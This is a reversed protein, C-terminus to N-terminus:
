LVRFTFSYFDAFDFPLEQLPTGKDSFFLIKGSKGVDNKDSNRKWWHQIMGDQNTDKIIFTYIGKELDFRERITEEEPFQALARVVTGNSNLLMYSNEKARKPTGTVIELVIKNPFILPLTWNTENYNNQPQEDKEGNVKVINVYFKIDNDLGELTIAPLTINTENLFDLYGYWKHTYTKGNKTGYNFSITKIPAQGNNKIKIVPTGDNFVVSRRYRLANNPSITEILAADLNFNPEGYTILQHAMRYDGNKEGNDDFMEIAYDITISDKKSTYPTLEFNYTDVATGPCWGARDFQWTGGQPHIPNHGCDKWVSWNFKNDGDINLTHTKSDWECCNYPGEHGHGSIRSKIRFMKGEPILAITQQKLVSNLALKEYKYHGNPWINEIKLVDRTPTGSIFVFKLDHLEQSNGHTIQKKETLIPAYDTVDWVYEWGNETLNLGKGYPTIYSNIQYDEGSNEDKIITETFYDWEGCPYKDRNTSEDCKITQVMLIKQWKSHKPFQVITSYKSDQEKTPSPTKFNFVQVVITDPHQTTTHLLKSHNNISANSFATLLLFLFLSFRFVM